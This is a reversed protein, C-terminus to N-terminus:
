VLGGGGDLPEVRLGELAHAANGAYLRGRHGEGQGVLTRQIVPKARHIAIVALPVTALEDVRRRGVEFGHVNGQEGAAVIAIGVGSLAPAHDDHALSKGPPIEVAVREAAMQPRLNLGELNDSDASVDLLVAPQVVILAWEGDLRGDIQRYGLEVVTEHFQDM